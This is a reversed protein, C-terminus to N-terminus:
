GPACLLHARLCGWWRMKQISCHRMTTAPHQPMKNEIHSVLSFSFSFILFFCFPPEKERKTRVLFRGLLSAASPAAFFFAFFYFAAAVAAALVFFRAIFSCFSFSYFRPFPPTHRRLTLLSSHQPPFAWSKHNLNQTRPTFVLLEQLEGRKETTQTHTHTNKYIYVYIYTHTHTPTWTHIDPCRHRSTTATAAKSTHRWCVASLPCGWADEKLQGRMAPSGQAGICVSCERKGKM